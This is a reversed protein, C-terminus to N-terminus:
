WTQDCVVAELPARRPLIDNYQWNPKKIAFNRLLGHTPLELLLLKILTESAPPRAFGLQDLKEMIKSAVEITCYIMSM